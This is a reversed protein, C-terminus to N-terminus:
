IELPSISILSCATDPFDVWSGGAEQQPARIIGLTWTLWARLLVRALPFSCRVGTGSMEGSSHVVIQKLSRQFDWVPILFFGLLIETDTHLSNIGDKAAHTLASLALMGLAKHSQEGTSAAWALIVLVSTDAPLVPCPGTAIISRFKVRVVKSRVPFPM